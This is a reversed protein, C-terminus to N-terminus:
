SKAAETGCALIESPNGRLVTPRLHLLDKVVGTRYSIAGVGVPDLVWPTGKENCVEVRM